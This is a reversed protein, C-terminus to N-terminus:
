EDEERPQNFTPDIQAHAHRGNEIAEQLWMEISDARKVQSQLEIIRDTDTPRVDVLDALADARDEAARRLVYQGITTRKFAQVALELDVALYLERLEPDNPLINGTM